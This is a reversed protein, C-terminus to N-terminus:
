RQMAKKKLLELCLAAEQDAVGDFGKQISAADTGDFEYGLKRARNM